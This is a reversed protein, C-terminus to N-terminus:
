SAVEYELLFLPLAQSGDFIVYEENIPSRERDKDATQAGKPGNWGPKKERAGHLKSPLQRRVCVRVCPERYM